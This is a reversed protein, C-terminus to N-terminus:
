GFRDQARSYRERLLPNDEFFIVAYRDLPRGQRQVEGGPLLLALTSAGGGSAPRGVLSASSSLLTRSSVLGSKEYGTAFTFPEYQYNAAPPSRRPTRVPALPLLCM